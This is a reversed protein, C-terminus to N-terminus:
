CPGAASGAHAGDLWAIWCCRLCLIIVLGVSVTETHVTHMIDTVDRVTDKAHIDAGAAMLMSVVAIHGEYSALM